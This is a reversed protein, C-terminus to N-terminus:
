PCFPCALFQSPNELTLEHIFVNTVNKILAASIGAVVAIGCYASAICQAIRVVRLLHKLTFDSFLVWSNKEDRLFLGDRGISRAIRNVIVQIKISTDVDHAIIWRAGVISRENSEGWNTGVHSFERPASHRTM